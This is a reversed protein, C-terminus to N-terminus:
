PYKSFQIKLPKQTLKLATSSKHIHEPYGMTGEIKLRLSKKKYYKTTYHLTKPISRRLNVHAVWSM